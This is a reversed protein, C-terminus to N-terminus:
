FAQLAEQEEACIAFFQHLRFAKLIGRLERDVGCLVLRGGAARIKTHLAVFKSLMMTSVKEVSGLNLVVRQGRSSEALRMLQQGMAQIADEELLEAQNFTVVTIDGIQEEALWRCDRQVSQM